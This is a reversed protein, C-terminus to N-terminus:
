TINYQIRKTHIPTFLTEGVIGFVSTITGLSTVWFSRYHM